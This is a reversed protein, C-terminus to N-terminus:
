KESLNLHFFLQVEFSHFKPAEWCRQADDDANEHISQSGESQKLLRNTKKM